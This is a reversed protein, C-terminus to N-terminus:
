LMYQVGTTTLVGRSAVQLGHKFCPVKKYKYSTRPPDDGGKDIKKKFHQEKDNNISCMVPIHWLMNQIGFAM